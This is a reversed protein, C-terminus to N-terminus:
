DDFSTPRREKEGPRRKMLQPALILVHIGLFLMAITAFVIAVSIFPLGINSAVIAAIMLGIFVKGPLNALKGRAPVAFAGVALISAAYFPLSGLRWPPFLCLITVLLATFSLWANGRGLTSLEASAKKPLLSAIAVGCGWLALMVGLACFAIGWYIADPGDLVRVGEARDDVGLSGITINSDHWNPYQFYESVIAKRGFLFSVAGMALLVATFIAGVVPNSHGTAPRPSQSPYEYRKVPM